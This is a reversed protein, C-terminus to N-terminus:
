QIAITVGTQSGTGGINLLIPVASGKAVGAPIQLNVQLVGAIEGSAGGAYKVTAPVGGVSATVPQAVPVPLPATGLTGDAGGSSTQGEGTAYVSVISGAPAPNSASNVTGDQNVIAGQGSKSLTFIAPFVATVPETLTGAVQGQYLLQVQTSSKGSVEYPVVCNVQGQVAFIMPAAVRDFLVQMGGLLTSAVGQGNLQLTAGPASPGPFPGFISIVEGPSVKGGLYSAASVISVGGGAVTLQFQASATAGNNDIIQLTFTFAGGSTPTGSLLGTGPVIGQSLSLGPPLTTGGSVSWGKYPTVGGTANLGQSYTSGVVGNPLPSVTLITPGGSLNVTFIQTVPTAAAWTSNGSQSATIACTGASLVTAVNGSVSCVSLTTSTFTVTLGSSATANLTIPSGPLTVSSLLGFTITQAQLGSSIITFSQAVPTAAAWTSNGLQNAVITCTGASIATVANGSIACISPTTSTFTIALGSSATANLAIPSSPLTVSSLREFQITQSQLATPWTYNIPAFMFTGYLNDQYVAFQVPQNGSSDYVPICPGQGVVANGCPPGQVSLAATSMSTNTATTQSDTIWTLTNSDKLDVALTDVFGGKLQADVSFTQSYMNTTDQLQTSANTYTITCTYPSPTGSPSVQNYPILQNGCSSRTFRGDLTSPSPPSTGISKPGYTSDSFPDAAAIQALETSTLAPGQGPPFIQGAAWSRNLSVQLDPPITGYDGNLYGLPVGVVDIGSGAPTDTADFGYGNWVVSNNPYLSLIVAPNLWVWIIDADHNVPAFISANNGFTKEGQQVQLSTTVTSTNKVTQSATTAYAASISGSAVSMMGGAADTVSVSFTTASTFSHSLSQSIGVLASSLYQVFSSQGGPPSYTVGLVIYKPDVYGTIPPPGQWILYPYIGSSTAWVATGFGTPLTGSQLQATTEGTGGASISLSSTQTDWYSSSTSGGQRPNCSSGAVGVLGGLYQAQPGQVGGLSYSQTITPSGASNACESGVLGGLASQAPGSVPGTAYSQAITAGNLGVLGGAATGLTLIHPSSQGVPGSASSKQIVGGNIGVLGGGVGGDGVNVPGSAFSRDILSGGQNNSGVLGGVYSLNGANVSGTASSLSITGPSSYGNYGVLGGVSSNTRYTQSGAGTVAVNARSNTISGDNEGVLGGDSAADGSNNVSGAASDDTLAGTNWGVLAGHSGGATASITADASSGTITGANKGALAGALNDSSGLITIQAGSLHVNQVVASAGVAGFLGVANLNRYIFLNTITYGNGDFSGTFPTAVTGIPVFGQAANLTATSSADINGGLQYAGALNNQM